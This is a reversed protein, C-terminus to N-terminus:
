AGVYDRTEMELEAAAATYVSEEAMGLPSRCSSEVKYVYDQFSMLYKNTKIQAYPHKAQM